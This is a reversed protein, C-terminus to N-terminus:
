GRAKTKVNTMPASAAKAKGPVSKVDVKSAMFHDGMPSGMVTVISGGKLDKVSMFKGNMRITAKSTDVKMPAKGKMALMFSKDMPAGKVMGTMTAVAPMSGKQAGMHTTTKGGQAFAGVSLALLSAILISNIFKRM